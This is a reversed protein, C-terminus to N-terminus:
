SVKWIFVTGYIEPTKGLAQGLGDTARIFDTYMRLKFVKTTAITMNFIHPISACIVISSSLNGGIGSAAIVSDTVNYFENWYNNAMKSPSDFYVSYTGAQLTIQNSSLSAWSAPIVVTNLTRDNYGIINTGGAVGSSKEDRVHFVESFPLYSTYQLTQPFFDGTQSM